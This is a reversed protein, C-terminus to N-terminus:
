RSRTGRRNTGNTQHRAARDLDRPVVFSTLRARGPAADAWAPGDIEVCALAGTPYKARLAPLPAGERALATALDEIAPNHGVLMADTCADPLGLVVELLRAGNFTYLDPDIRITLEPGLSPLVVALTERARRASSCVVLSPRIGERELYGGIRGAAERGRPALPRDHDDLGPEDWSSKAHRLLWLRRM